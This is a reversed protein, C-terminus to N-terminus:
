TKDVLTEKRPNPLECYISNALLLSLTLVPIPLQPLAQQVKETDPALM